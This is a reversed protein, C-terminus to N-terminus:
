GLFKGVNKTSRKARLRQLGVQFTWLLPLARRRTSAFQSCASRVDPRNAGVRLILGLFLSGALSPPRHGASGPFSRRRPLGSVGRFNSNNSVMQPEQRLKPRFRARGEAPSNGFPCAISASNGQTTVRSNTTRDHGVGRRQGDEGLSRFSAQRATRSGTVVSATTWERGRVCSASAIAAAHPRLLAPPPM